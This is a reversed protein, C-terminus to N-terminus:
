NGFTKVEQEEEKLEIIEGNLRGQLEIVANELDIIREEHEARNLLIRLAVGYDYKGLGTLTNKETFRTLDAIVDLPLMTTFRRSIVSGQIKKEKAM